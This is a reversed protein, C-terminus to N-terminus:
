LPKERVANSARNERRLLEETCPNAVAIEGDSSPYLIDRNKSRILLIIRM